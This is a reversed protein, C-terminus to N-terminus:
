PKMEEVAKSACENVFRRAEEDDEAVYARFARYTDIAAVAPSRSRLDVLDEGDRIWIQNLPGEEEISKYLPRQAADLLIRGQRNRGEALWARVEEEVKERRRLYLNEVKARARPKVPERFLGSSLADHLDIAKFLRRTRLRESFGSVLSDSAKSLMPLAGFIVADDLDALTSLQNPQLFFAVIPHNNPLGTADVEGATVREAIRELMAQAMKEAGRTTKHLYVSPYMQFVGTVFAEAAYIAKPGLVLTRRKPAGTVQPLDGVELNAMLWEFDIKALRTGTM